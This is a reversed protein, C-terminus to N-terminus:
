GDGPRPELGSAADGLRAAVRDIDAEGPEAWSRFRGGIAETVLREADGGATGWRSLFWTLVQACHRYWADGAGTREVVLYILDVAGREWVARAGAAATAGALPYQEFRAALEELWARWEILADSVRALTEGTSTISHAACCWSGVPGGGGDGEDRAWRWGAAWRGWHAAMAQTMAQAWPSGDDRAWDYLDRGGPQQAPRVPVARAPALGRIVGPASGADFPHCGPDM